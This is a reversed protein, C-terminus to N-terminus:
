LDTIETLIVANMVIDGAEDGLIKDMDTENEIKVSLESAIKSNPNFKLINTYPKTQIVNRKSTLNVEVCRIRVVEGQRLNPFKFRPISMFWMEQSLDKIRLEYSQEDKEFIKLVKVVLDFEAPKDNQAQFGRVEKLLKYMDKNVVYQNLFYQEGWGRLNDLHSKETSM